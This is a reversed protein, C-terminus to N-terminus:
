VLWSITSYKEKLKTKVYLLYDDIKDSEGVGLRVSDGIITNELAEYTIYGNYIDNIAVDLYEYMSTEEDGYEIWSSWNTYLNVLDIIAISKNRVSCSDM